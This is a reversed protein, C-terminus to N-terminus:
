NDQTYSFASNDQRHSCLAEHAIRGSKRTFNKGCVRCQFPKQGLHANIHGELNSKNMFGKNCIHCRHLFLGKHRMVHLRYGERSGFHNGCEACSFTTKEYSACNMGNGLQTYM